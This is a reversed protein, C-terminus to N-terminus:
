YSLSPPASASRILRAAEHMDQKEWTEHQLDSCGPWPQVPYYFVVPFPSVFVCVSVCNEYTHTKRSYWVLATTVSILHYFFHGKMEQELEGQSLLPSLHWICSVKGRQTLLPLLCLLSWLARAGPWSVEDWVREKQLKRWRKRRPLRDTTVTIPNSQNKCSVPCKFVFVIMTYM